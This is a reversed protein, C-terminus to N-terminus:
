MGCGSRRRASLARSKSNQDDMDQMEGDEGSMGSMGAMNGCGSMSRGSGSGQGMGPMGAMGANMGKMGKMAGTKGKMTGCDPMSKGMYPNSTKENAQLWDAKAMPCTFVHYGKVGEAMPIADNSIAKFHERASELSDSKALERAHAAPGTMQAAEAKEALATAAKQASNLDDNALAAQVPLYATLYDTTKIDPQKAVAPAAVLAAVVAVAISYLKTKM